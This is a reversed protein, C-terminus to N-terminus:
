FPQGAGSFVVQMGMSCAYRVTYASGGTTKTCYAFLIDSHDVMYRDRALFCGNQYREYLVIVRDCKKLLDRYLLRNKESFSKEQGKFPICAEILIPYEEKLEMLLRLALLDFGEAMGCYFTNCGAHIMEKLEEFLRRNDFTEPLERHGTLACSLQEKM